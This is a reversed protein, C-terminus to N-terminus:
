RIVRVGGPGVGPSSGAAGPLIPVGHADTPLPTGDMAYPRGDDGIMYACDDQIAGGPIM